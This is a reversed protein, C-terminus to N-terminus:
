EKINWEYPEPEPDLRSLWGSVASEWSVMKNKGVKWGNSSYFNIFREAENEAKQQPLHNKLSTDTMRKLVDIYLPPTFRRSEKKPKPETNHTRLESNQTPMAQANSTPISTANSTANSSPSWRADAGAKARVVAKEHKERAKMREREMRPNFWLGDEERFYHSIAEWIEVDGIVRVIKDLSFKGKQWSYMLVRIYAGMEENSLDITDSIFDSTYLPFYPLKAM